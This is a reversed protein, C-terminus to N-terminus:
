LENLFELADRTESKGNIVLNIEEVANRIDSYFESKFSETAIDLKENLKKWESLPIVVASANGNNDTIYNINM